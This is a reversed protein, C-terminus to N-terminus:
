LLENTLMNYWMKPHIDDDQCILEISCDDFFIWYVIFEKSCYDFFKRKAHEIIYLREFIM